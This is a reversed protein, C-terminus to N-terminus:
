SKKSHQLKYLKAYIGDLDILQNHNGREVVKGKDFVIIEDADIITSLRHAVLIATKNDLSNNIADQVIKESEADLASTAEDFILIQPNRLLARAIALRQREGGSLNAGRDGIKSQFKDPMNMIFNYCNAKKSAEIIDSESVNELGYRINNAITDNFLINEQSVIGFLSRYSEITYDKINVGDVLIEGKTPDYFRIILDLMTSKGSGSSGVFAIKKSKPIEININHLVSDNQYAFSLNRITISREFNDFIKNGSKVTPEADIISFIREAAVIGRQYSSLSNFVTSIPSMISFLSFLFLMLKEPPMEGTLVQNGGILLVVTLAIIAFMENTPAILEIVKRHKIASRVYKYTDNNFNKSAKDEYNYSKVIRIGTISENMTSTYDAMANQMREAYKRLTKVAVRILLISIISTSFAALTLLPSISILLFLFLFIQIFERLSVTFTSLTTSNVVAVDNTIISILNGQKSATFYDVSLNLLRSFINDRISKIVGEELRTSTVSSLYKFLNKFAFVIIILLSINILTSLTGNDSHVLNYIIDFFNDTLSNVPSDISNAPRSQKTNFILELIPLILTVSITSFFSFITNLIIQLILLYKFPKIFSFIRLIIKTDNQKEQKNINM